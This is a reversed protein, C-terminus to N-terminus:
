GGNENMSARSNIRGSMLNRRGKRAIMISGSSLFSAYQRITSQPDLLMEGCRIGIKDYLFLAPRM